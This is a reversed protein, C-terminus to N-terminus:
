RRERETRKAIEPISDAPSVITKITEANSLHKRALYAFTQGTRQREEIIAKLQEGSIPKDKALILTQLHYTAEDENDTVSSHQIVDEPDMEVASQMGAGGLGFSHHFQNPLMLSLDLHFLDEESFPIHFDGFDIFPKGDTRMQFHYHPFSSAAGGHGAYDNKSCDFTWETNKWKVSYEFIKRDSKEGQLDNISGLFREQNAVWRVFAAIQVYGFREFISRFDKKRIKCQRLVGHVCPAATSFTKFSKGCLYCEGRGYHQVFQEYEATSRAFDEENQERLQDETMGEVMSRFYDPNVRRPPPRTNM